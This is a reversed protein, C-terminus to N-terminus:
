FIMIWSFIFVLLDFLYVASVFISIDFECYRVAVVPKEHSNHTNYICM